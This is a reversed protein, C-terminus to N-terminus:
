ALGGAADGPADGSVDGPVDGEIRLLEFTDRASVAVLRESGSVSEFTTVHAPRGGTEVDERPHLRLRPNRQQFRRGLPHALVLADLSVFCLADCDSCYHELTKGHPVAPMVEGSEQRLPLMRGCRLCPVQRAALHPTYYATVWAWLREYARKYGKVGGLIERSHTHILVDNADVCCSPCRLWWEGEERNYRGMIRRRGCLSCWLPTEEWVSGDGGSGDLDGVRFAAMEDAFETALVRRLALKGRQLRMAVASANVGLRAAIEALPSEDVYHAVLAGRTELPLLALARDLLTVLEHRELEVELDDPAALEIAPAVLADEPLPTRHVGAGTIDLPRAFQHASDRGYTRLWRLCVNRAIGGLWAEARDPQRLAHRHRWAELMTEQALDEAAASQGSLRACLRVLSARERAFVDPLAEQATLLPAASQTM